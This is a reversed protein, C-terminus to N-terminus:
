RSIDIHQNIIAIMSQGIWTAAGGPPKQGPVDPATIGIDWIGNVGTLSKDMTFVYLNLIADRMISFESWSNKFDKYRVQIDFSINWKVEYIKKTVAGPVTGIPVAGPKVILFYKGGRNADSDDDTCQWSHTFFQTLTRAKSLFGDKILAYNAQQSPTSM